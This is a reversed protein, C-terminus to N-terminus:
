VDARCLLGTQRVRDFLALQQAQLDDLLRRQRELGHRGPFAADQDEREETSQHQADTEPERAVVEVAGHLAARVNTPVSM